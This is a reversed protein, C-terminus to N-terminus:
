VRRKFDRFSFRKVVDFTGDKKFIVISPLNIGNFSNNKVITYHAMDTFVLKVNERLPEDFSYDGVSDGALCSVGGIRYTYPKEYPPYSNVIHPRYPMIIVDPLHAEFSGDIIAIDIENRVIDLVSSVYYGCNLVSAEGPELYVQVDYKSKFDNILRVLLEIDYDDRTIHHGGGFSVWRVNKIYPGFMETFRLLIRELVDSNQECMAHFHIGDILDRYKEYEGKFTEYTVGLRSYPACPDYMKTEVESYGPNIRIGVQKGKKKVDKWFKNLQSFSNFIVVDSFRVISKLDREPYAAGFTHVEKGFHYYGLKAEYLGSACVGDLYKRMIPFTYYGSFAKLAHLIKCGTRDKVYQMIKMNEEVLLEDIVYSPTSVDDIVSLLLNLRREFVEKKQIKILSTLREVKDKCEFLLTRKEEENLQFYERVISPDDGMIGKVIKERLTM